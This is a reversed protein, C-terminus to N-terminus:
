DLMFGCFESGCLRLGAFAELESIFAYCPFQTDVPKANVVDATVHGAAASLDRTYCPTALLQKGGTHFRFSETANNDEAYILTHNSLSRNYRLCGSWHRADTYYGPAFRRSM